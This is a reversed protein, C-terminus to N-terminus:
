AYRELVSPVEVRGEEPSESAMALDVLRLVLLVRSIGLPPWHSRKCAVIESAGYWRVLRRNSLCDCLLCPASVTVICCLM